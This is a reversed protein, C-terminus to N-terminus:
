RFWWAIVAFAGSVLTAVIGALTAVARRAGREHARTILLSEVNTDIKDLKAQVAEFQRTDNEVHQRVLELLPDTVTAV